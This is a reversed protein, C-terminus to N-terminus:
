GVNGAVSRVQQRGAGIIERADRSATGLSFRGAVDGLVDSVGAAPDSCSFAVWGKPEDVSVVRIAGGAPRWTAVFTEYRKATPKGYLTFTGTTWGRRQGGRKALDIRDEGYIRPRGPRGPRAAPVAPLNSDKRLRSVVTVGLSRMPKPFPATACAGDAAVRPPEGLFGLWTVAWRMLGVAMESKTRFPPRHGPPIGALDKARAYLRALLPLAVVGWTPHAALARPRGM